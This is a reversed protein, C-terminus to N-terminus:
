RVGGLRQLAARAEPSAPDLRAALRCADRASEPDGVTELVSGLQVQFRALNVALGGRQALAVLREEDDTVAPRGTHIGDLYEQGHFVLVGLKWRVILEGGFTLAPGYGPYARLCQRLEEFAVDYAGFGAFGQALLARFAPGPILRAAERVRFLHALCQQRAEEDERPEAYTGAPVNYEFWTWAVRGVPQHRELWSYAKPGGNLVGRLANANVLIPGNVPWFAYPDIRYPLGRREVYSRLFRDNQGWDYNSDILVRHGNKAGGALINFYSLHHPTIAAAHGAVTLLLVVVAIRPWITRVPMSNAPLSGGAEGEAQAKGVAWLRVTGRGAAVALFPYIMLIHRLGIDISGVMAPVLFLVMPATLLLLERRSQRRALGFGALLLQAIPTKVLIAVPFYYWWGKDSYNGLLYAFHGQAGHALAGRLTEVLHPPLFAGGQGPLHRYVVWALGVWAAPLLLWSLFNRGRKGRPAMVGLVVLAYPYLMLAQVKVLGAAALAVALMLMRGWGPRDLYRDLLFVALFTFFTVPLDLTAVTSHALLNPCLVAFFLAALGAGPGHRKKAFRWILICLGCGLLIGPLRFLFLHQETWLSYDHTFLAAPATILLQGLPFNGVGGSFVGSKWYLWGSPIHAGLEDCTGSNLLAAAVANGLFLALLLPATWRRAPLRWRDAVALWGFLRMAGLRSPFFVPTLPQEREPHERETM